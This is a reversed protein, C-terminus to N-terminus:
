SRSFKAILGVTHFCGDIVVSDIPLPIKRSRPLIGGVKTGEIGGGLNGSELLFILLDVAVTEVEEAKIGTGRIDEIAATDV